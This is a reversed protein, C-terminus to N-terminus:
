LKKVKIKRRIWVYVGTFILLIVSISVINIWIWENQKGFFARGTHIHLVLDKFDVIRSESVLKNEIVPLFNKEVIGKRGEAMIYKNNIIQFDFIENNYRKYIKDKYLSWLGYKGGFFITDAIKHIFRIESGITESVILTDNNLIIQLGNKTGLFTKNDYMAVSKIDNQYNADINKEFLYGPIFKKDIKYNKLNLEKEFGLIIATIAVLFIPLSLIIGIWNHWKLFSKTIVFSNKKM